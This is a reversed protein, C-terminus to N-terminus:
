PTQQDRRQFEPSRRSSSRDEHLATPSQSPPGRPAGRADILRPRSTGTRGWLDGLLLSNVWRLGEMVVERATARDQWWRSPDFRDHSSSRMVIATGPLRRRLMTAMRRSHTRDAIVILGAPRAARAWRAIMRVHGDTGDGGPEIAIASRPVGQRVLVLVALEYPQQPIPIALRELLDDEADLPDAMVIIRPAYGARFLASAETAAAVPRGSVVVIVDARTLPTEEVLLAGVRALLPARALWLAAGVLVLAAFAILLKRGPRRM